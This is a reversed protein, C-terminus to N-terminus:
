GGLATLIEGPSLAHFHTTGIGTCIVFKIKGEAAKKDVEMGQILKQMSVDRPIELPLGAKKILKRIRELSRQDCFGQQVSIAAAQAMGIGV